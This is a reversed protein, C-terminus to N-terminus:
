HLLIKNKPYHCRFPCVYWEVYKNDRWQQFIRDLEQNRQSKSDLSYFFCRHIIRNMGWTTACYACKIVTGVEANGICIGIYDIDVWVPPLINKLDKEMDILAPYNNGMCDLYNKGHNCLWCHESDSKCYDPYFVTLGYYIVSNVEKKLEQVLESYTTAKLHSGELFSSCGELPSISSWVHCVWKPLSDNCNWMVDIAKFLTLPDQVLHEKVLNDFCGFSRSEHEKVMNLLFRKAKGQNMGIYNNM